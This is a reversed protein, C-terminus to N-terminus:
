SVAWSIPLPQDLIHIPHNNGLRPRQQLNAQPPSAHGDDVYRWYQGQQVRDRNSFFGPKKEEGCMWVYVNKAVVKCGGYICGDHCSVGNSYFTTVHGLSLVVHPLVNSEITRREIIFLIDLSTASLCRCKKSRTVSCTKAPLHADELPFCRM